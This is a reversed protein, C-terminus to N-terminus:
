SRFVWQYWMDVAKQCLILRTPRREGGYGGLGKPFDSCTVEQETWRQHGREVQIIYRYSSAGYITYQHGWWQSSSMSCDTSWKFNDIWARQGNQFRTELKRNDQLQLIFLLEKNFQCLECIKGMGTTQSEKKRSPTKEHLYFSHKQLGTFILEGIKTAPTAQAKHEACPHIKIHLELM